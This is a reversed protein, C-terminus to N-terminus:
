LSSSPTIGTSTTSDFIHFFTPLLISKLCSLPLSITSGSLGSVGTATVPTVSSLFMKARSAPPVALSVAVTVGELAVSLVTLQDALSAFTAITLSPVTVATAAPVVVIVTVVLSPLLVAVQVTVTVAGAGDVTATVLTENSLVVKASSTSPVVVRTAVTLGVSAVSLVTEQDLSLVETAVTSALPLTVATAAPEAVIVTVVVSPPLVAVQATVTVAGVGGAVTLTVSTLKFLVVSGNTTPLLSVKTGVTVGELAVSM